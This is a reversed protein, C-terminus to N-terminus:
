TGARRADGRPHAPQDRQRRRRARAPRRAGRRQRASEPRRDRSSRADFVATFHFTSGQGVESEVWMRGGMLEVLRLAIALGLGTGGYRRTTSRRGAHLGPLDAAAQGASHRHRHRPGRFAADARTTPGIPKSARRQARGRGRRHVQRRQRHHQAAGAPAARSRRAARGPVDPAVHCALELGKEGARLALLKPRTASRRRPPRVRARELDLRRAEIKSFDLIDNIVDLLAEASSQVTTLFEESSRRCADDAACARDHGLIANLPTRIEHSM